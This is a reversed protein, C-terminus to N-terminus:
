PSSHRNRKAAILVRPQYASHASDRRTAPRPFALRLGLKEMLGSVLRIGGSLRDRSIIRGGPLIIKARLSAM